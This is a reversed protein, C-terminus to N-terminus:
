VGKSNIMMGLFSNVRRHQHNIIKLPSIPGSISCLNMIEKELTRRKQDQDDNEEKLNEMQADSIGETSLRVKLISELFTMSRAATWATIMATSTSIVEQIRPRSRSQMREKTHSRSHERLEEIM